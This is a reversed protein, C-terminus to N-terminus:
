RQAKKLAKVMLMLLMCKLMTQIDNKTEELRICLDSRNSAKRHMVDFLDGYLYM